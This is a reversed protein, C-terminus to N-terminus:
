RVPKSFYIEPCEGWFKQNLMNTHVRLVYMQFINRSSASAGAGSVLRGRVEELRYQRWGSGSGVHVV